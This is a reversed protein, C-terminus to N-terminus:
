SNKMAQEVNYVGAIVVVERFQRYWSQSSLSAGKSQKISSNVSETMSRQHYLDDDIRANHAHDYAKFERHKILPRVGNQRLKERFGQDDYGKDGALSQLDDGNRLAVKPGIRMGSPWKTSCHLDTIANEATDVLFTAQVTHVSRGTRDLYHQSAQWRRFYTADIAAHGSQELLKATGSLLGRWVSMPTREFSRYLTTPHPFEGFEINLLARVRDMEEAWDVIQRYSADMHVRLYHLVVHKWGDFGHGTPHSIKNLGAATYKQALSAVQRVFRFLVKQM